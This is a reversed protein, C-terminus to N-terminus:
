RRRGLWIMFAFAVVVTIVGSSYGAIFGDWYDM